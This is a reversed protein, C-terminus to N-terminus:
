FSFMAKSLPWRRPSHAGTDRGGRCQKPLMGPAHRLASFTHHITQFVKSFNMDYIKESRGQRKKQGICRQPWAAATRGQGMGIGAAGTQGDNLNASCLYYYTKFQRESKNFLILNCMKRESIGTFMSHKCPMRVGPNLVEFVSSISIPIRSKAKGPPLFSPRCHSVACIAICFLGNQMAIHATEPHLSLRKALCFLGNQPSNQGIQQCIRNCLKRKSAGLHRLVLPNRSCM